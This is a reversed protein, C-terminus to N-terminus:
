GDLPTCAQYRTRFFVHKINGHACFKYSNYTSFQTVFSVENGNDVVKGYQNPVRGLGNDFPVGELATSKYGISRLVLGCEQRTFEGTGIAKCANVPGELRNIEYEIAQVTTESADPLIKTPSRLFDLTWSKDGTKNAPSAIEKELIGMLRKLPRTKSLYDAGATLESQLLPIDTHFHVGPLKMQERLEKATFAAQVRM